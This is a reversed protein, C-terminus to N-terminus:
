RRNEPSSSTFLGGAFPGGATTTPNAAPKNTKKRDLISAMNVVGSRRAFLGQCLLFPFCLSSLLCCLFLTLLLLLLIFPHRLFGVLPFLGLIGLLLHNSLIVQPAMVPSSTMMRHPLNSPLFSHVLVAASLAVLGTFLARKRGQPPANTAMILCCEGPFM